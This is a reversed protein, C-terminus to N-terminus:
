KLTTLSCEHDPVARCPRGIHFPLTVAGNGAGRKNFSAAVRRSPHFKQPKASPVNSIQIQM